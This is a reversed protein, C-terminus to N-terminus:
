VYVKSSIGDVLKGQQFLLANVAMNPRAEKLYNIYTLKEKHGFKNVLNENLFDPMRENRHRWKFFKKSNFKKYGDLLEYMTICNKPMNLDIENRLYPLSVIVTDLVCKPMKLNQITLGADSDFIEKLTIENNKKKCKSYHLFILTFAIIPNKKLFEISDNTLYNITEIIGLELFDNFKNKTNCMNKLHEFLQKNRMDFIESESDESYNRSLGVVDLKSFFIEKDVNCM